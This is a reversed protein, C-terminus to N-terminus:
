GLGANGGTGRLLLRVRETLAARAASRAYDRVTVPRAVLRGVIDSSRVVDGAVARHAAMGLESSFVPDLPRSLLGLARAVPVPARFVAFRRSAEEEFIRVAELPTVTSPGGVPVYTRSVGSESDVIGAMVRAVDRVSVYSV